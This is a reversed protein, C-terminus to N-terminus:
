KSIVIAIQIYCHSNRNFSRVFPDSRQHKLFSFSLLISTASILQSLLISPLELLSLLIRFSLAFSSRAAFPFSMLSAPSSLLFLLIQLLRTSAEDDAVAQRLLFQFYFNRHFQTEETWQQFGATPCVGLYKFECLKTDEKM